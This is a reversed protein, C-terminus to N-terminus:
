GVEMAQTRSRGFAISARRATGVYVRGDRGAVPPTTIDKGPNLIQTAMEEGNADVQKLVSAAGILVSNDALVTAYQFQRAQMVPTTWLERGDQVARLKNAHIYCIRNNAGVMPPQVYPGVAGGGLDMLWVPKKDQDPELTYLALQHNGKPTRMAVVLKGDRDLSAALFRAQPVAFLETSKGTEVAIQRVRFDDCLAIVSRRDDGMLGPLAEGDLEVHWAWDGRGMLIFNANDKERRDDADVQMARNQTQCLLQKGGVPVALPFFGFPSSSFVYFNDLVVKNENDVASLAQNTARFYVRSKEYTASYGPTIEREWRPSGDFGVLRLRDPYQVVLGADTCLIVGPPNHNVTDSTPVFWEKEGGLKVVVNQFSSQRYDAYKKPYTSMAAKERRGAASVLACAALLIQGYRPLRTVWGPRGHHTYRSPEIKEM